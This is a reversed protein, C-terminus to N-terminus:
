LVTGLFPDFAPHISFEKEPAAGGNGLVERVGSPSVIKPLKVWAISVGPSQRLKDNPSFLTM